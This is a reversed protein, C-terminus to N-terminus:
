QQELPSGARETPTPVSAHLVPTTQALAILWQGGHQVMLYTVAGTAEPLADASGSRRRDLVTKVCSVLAVGASPFRVDVVDVATHVEALSSRLASAMAEALAARGLIRRGPFNVVVADPTHLAPLADVDSQARSAQAVVERIRREDASTHTAVM